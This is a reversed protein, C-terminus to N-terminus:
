QCSWSTTVKDAAMTATCNKQQIEDSGPAKLKVFGALERPGRRLMTIETVTFNKAVYDAQIRKKVDDISAPDFGQAGQYATWASYAVVALAVLVITKGTRNVALGKQTLKAVSM